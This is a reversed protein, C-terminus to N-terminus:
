IDDTSEAVIGKKLTDLMKKVWEFDEDSLPYPFSLIATGGSILPLPLDKLKQDGSGKATVKSPKRKRGSDSATDERSDDDADVIDSDLLGAFSITEKFQELCAAAAEESFTKERVLYFLINDDSALAGDRAFRDWLDRNITPALALSQIAAARERSGERKDQIIDLAESTLQATRDDGRGHDDILNFKKLAALVVMGSGSKASYGWHSLITSVPARHRREVEYLQEARELAARLHISPYSPSRVKKKKPGASQSDNPM